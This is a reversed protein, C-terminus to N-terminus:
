RGAEKLIFLADVVRPKGDVILVPNLDMEGIRPFDLALRGLSVLISALSERNVPAMGRYAKLLDRSRLSEMMEFADEMSLPALRVRHDKLAETYLGGLGFLVCPPFGPACTTGAMFERDGQLMESVLVPIGSDRNRIARFARVLDDDSRVNLHVLGLETKHPADPSCGKLVVPYGLVRAAEVAEPLSEALIERTVPIGYAALVQKARYEDLPGSVAGDLIDRAKVPPPVDEHVPRSRNRNRVEYHRYLAGMARAAKEPSDFVPIGKEHFIRVCRDEGGFFSNILLPKGHRRPMEVLPDLDTEPMPFPNDEGLALVQRVVPFVENIFGSDMIGHIIVGDIGEEEFVIRPVNEALTSMDM